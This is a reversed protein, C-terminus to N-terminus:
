DTVPSNGECLDTVRFQHKREDVGSYVTSYVITISTIQSAMPSMIVDSNHYTWLKATSRKTITISYSIIPKMQCVTFGRIYSAGWYAFFNDIVWIYNSCRRDASSWSCRWERSLMQSWPIRCLCGCSLVLITKTNPNPADWILSKVTNKLKSWQCQGPPLRIITGTGTVYNQLIHAFGECRLEFWAMVKPTYPVKICKEM